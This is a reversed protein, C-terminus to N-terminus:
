GVQLVIKGRTHGTESLEHAKRAQALPLITSVVPVVSGDDILAALRRLLPSSPQVFVYAPRIGRSRAAEPSPPSVISGLVGGDRLVQYSREQVDGGITDFVADIGRVEDEFRVDTHDIVQDAGLERLFSANARSATTIVRAGKWKALQIAFTGVGGAGGHILITQGKELGISTFPDPAEFLMQWAALGALPVAAAHVHDLTRPRRAVESARIAVYEAYAGDRALEPRAYVAEGIPFRMVGEGQAVVEGSVDWGPIMPLTYPLAEKMLGKRIKWDIPNVGAAHVRVLVEGPGARPRPADEYVLVEPGGYAHIRIAKM